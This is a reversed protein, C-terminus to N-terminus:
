FKSPLDHIEALEDWTDEMFAKNLHHWIAPRSFVDAIFKEVNVLHTMNKSEGPMRHHGYDEHVFPLPLKKAEMNLFITLSLSFAAGFWIVGFWSDRLLDLQKRIRLVFTQFLFLSTQMHNCVNNRKTQAAKQNRTKDKRLETPTYVFM